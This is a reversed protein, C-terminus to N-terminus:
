ITWEDQPSHLHNMWGTTFTFPENMRHQIYIAWEEQPSHLHSMRGTTFTFPENIRHHIYHLHSMWGTTFTIYIAWKDQPSHLHSVGGSSQWLEQNRFLFNWYERFHVFNECFHPGFYMLFRSKQKLLIENFVVIPILHIRFHKYYYKRRLEM